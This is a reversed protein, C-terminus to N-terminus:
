KIIIIIIMIIVVIIIVIIVLEILIAVELNINNDDHKNNVKFLGPLLSTLELLSHPLLSSFIKKNLSKSLVAWQM